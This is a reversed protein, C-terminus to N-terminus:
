SRSSICLKLCSGVASLQRRWSSAAPSLHTYIMSHAAQGRHPQGASLGKGRPRQTGRRYIRPWTDSHYRYSVLFLRTGSYNDLHNTGSLCGFSSDFVRHPSNTSLDRLWPM